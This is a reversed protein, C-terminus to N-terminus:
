WNRKYSYLRDGIVRSVFDKGEDPEYRPDGRHLVNQFSRAVGDVRATGTDLRGISEGVFCGFDIVDDTYSCSARIITFAVLKESKPGLGRNAPLVEPETLGVDKRRVREGVFFRFRWRNYVFLREANMESVTWRGSHAGLGRHPIEGGSQATGDM